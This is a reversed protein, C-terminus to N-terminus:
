RLVPPPLNALEVAEFAVNRRHANGEFRARRGDFVQKRHAQAPQAAHPAGAAEVNGAVHDRSARAGIGALLVIVVLGAACKVLVTWAQVPEANMDQILRRCERSSQM